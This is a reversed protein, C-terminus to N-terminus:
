HSGQSERVEMARTHLENAFFDKAKKSNLLEYPFFSGVAFRTLIGRRLRSYGQKGQLLATASGISSLSEQLGKNFRM